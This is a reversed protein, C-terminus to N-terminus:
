TKINTATAIAIPALIMAPVFVSVAAPVGPIEAASGLVGGDALHHRGPRV